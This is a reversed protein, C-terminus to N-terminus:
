LCDTTYFRGGVMSTIVLQPRDDYYIGSQLQLPLLLLRSLSKQRGLLNQEVYSATSRGFGNRKPRNHM